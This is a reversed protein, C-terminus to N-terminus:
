GAELQAVAEVPTLKRLELVAQKGSERPETRGTEWGTVSGISIGLLTAMETQTIQLKRRTSRVTDKRWNQELKSRVVDAAGPGLSAAQNKVVRTLAKLNRQLEALEKRQASVVKKAKILDKAIPDVLVRAEKRALRLVESRFTAAYSLPQTM